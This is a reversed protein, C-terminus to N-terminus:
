GEVEERVLQDMDGALATLYGADDPRQRARARLLTAMADLFRVRPLGPPIDGADRAVTGATTWLADTDPRHEDVGVILGASDRLVTRRSALGLQDAIEYLPAAPDTM